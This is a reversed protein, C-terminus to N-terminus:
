TSLVYNFELSINKAEMSDHWVKVKLPVCKDQTSNDEHPSIIVITPLLCQTRESRYKRGQRVNGHRSSLPLLNIYGQAEKM